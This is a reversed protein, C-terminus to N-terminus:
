DCSFRRLDIGLREAQECLSRGDMQEYEWADMIATPFGSFAAAGCDDMMYDRLKDIDVRIEM